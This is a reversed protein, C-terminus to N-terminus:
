DGHLQAARADAARLVTVRAKNSKEEGRVWEVTPGDADALMEIIKRATMGGYGEVEPRPAAPESRTSKTDAEAALSKSLTKLAARGLSRAFAVQKRGADALEPSLKRYELALGLPAFVGADLLRDLDSREDSVVEQAIPLGFGWIPM